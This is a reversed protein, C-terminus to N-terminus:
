QTDTGCLEPLLWKLLKTAPRGGGTHATTPKHIEKMMSFKHAVFFSM